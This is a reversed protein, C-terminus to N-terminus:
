ATTTTSTSTSTSTSSSTSTTTTSTSTSTSTTSTLDSGEQSYGLKKGFGGPEDFSINEAANVENDRQLFRSTKRQIGGSLDEIDFKQEDAEAM